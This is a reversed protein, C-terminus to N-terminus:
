DQIEDLIESVKNLIKNKKSKLLYYIDINNRFTYINFDIKIDPHQLLLKVKKINKHCCAIYLPTEQFNNKINININPHNVLLKFISLYKTSSAEHLASWGEKNTLNVDIDKKSLLLLAM